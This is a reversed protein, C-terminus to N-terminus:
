LSSLICQLAHRLTILYQFYVNKFLKRNIICVSSLFVYQTPSLYAALVNLPRSNHNELYKRVRYLNKIHAKHIPNLSGTIILVCSFLYNECDTM